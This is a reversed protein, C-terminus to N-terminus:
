NDTIPYMGRIKMLLLLMKVNLTKNANFFLNNITIWDEKRELQKLTSFYVAKPKSFPSRWYIGRETMAFGEKCSTMITQDCILLIKENKEPFLFSQTANKLKDLPMRTFDTYFVAEEENSFDLYDLVMRFLNVDKWNQIQYNLIAKNLHVQNLDQCHQVLFTLILHNFRDAIFRTQLAEPVRVIETSIAEMRNQLVNLYQENQGFRDLYNSLRKKEFVKTVFYKLQEAFVKQLDPIRIGTTGGGADAQKNPVPQKAGCHHCFRAETQLKTQCNTCYPM